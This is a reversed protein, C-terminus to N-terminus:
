FYPKCKILSCSRFYPSRHRCRRLARRVADPRWNSMGHYHTGRIDASMCLWRVPNRPPPPPIPTPPAQWCWNKAAQCTNPQRSRRRCKRMAQNISQQRIAHQGSYWTRFRDVAKCQWPPNALTNMSVVSVAVLMSNLAVKKLM